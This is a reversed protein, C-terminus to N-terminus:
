AAGNATPFPILDGQPPQPPQAIPAAPQAPAQLQQMEAAKMNMMADADAMWRRMLELRDEPAKQAKAALYASQMLKIGLQLNQYPEPTQYGGKSLIMDIVRKIDQIAANGITMYNDLDPFDLLEKAYDMDIFGNQVLETTKELRGSPTNPLFSTPFSQMEFSDEDLNIDAWDISEIFKRNFSTMKFSGEEEYIEKGLQIMQKAAQMFFQEYM